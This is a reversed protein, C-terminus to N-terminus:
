DERRLRDPDPSNKRLHPPLLLWAEETTAGPAVHGSPSSGQLLPKCLPQPCQCDGAWM